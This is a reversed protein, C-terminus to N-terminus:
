NGLARLLVWYRWGIILKDTKSLVSLDKNRYSPLIVRNIRALLRFFRAKVQHM